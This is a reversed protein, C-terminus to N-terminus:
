CDGYKKCFEDVEDIFKSISEDTDKLAKRLKPNRSLERSLKDKQRGAVIDIIRDWITKKKQPKPIDAM